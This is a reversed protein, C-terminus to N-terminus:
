LFAKIKELRNIVNLLEKPEYYRQDHFIQKEEKMIVTYQYEQKTSEAFINLKYFSLQYLDHDILRSFNHQFGSCSILNKPQCIPCDTM